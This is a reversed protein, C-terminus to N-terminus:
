NTSREFPSTLTAMIQDAVQAPARDETRIETGFLPDRSARLCVEMHSLCWWHNGESEPRGLIRTRLTEEPATLRFLRLDPDATRLGYALETFRDRSWVTMPIILTRGYEKYLLSATEVVMPVWLPHDQFDKRQEVHEDIERTLHWVFAGVLEPDYLVADKIRGVLLRAVTTKGVGFPGNIFLIM